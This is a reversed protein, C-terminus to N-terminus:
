LDWENHLPAPTCSHLLAPTCSHLLQLPAPTCSHLLQLPASTCSHLLQLPTALPSARTRSRLLRLVMTGPIDSVGHDCTKPASRVGARALGSAVLDPEAECKIQQRVNARRTRNQPKVDATHGCFHLLASTCLHLSSSTCFHLLPTALPSARTRSRLLRLVMTGPIDSVGHNCTRPASRVGARALGSAM